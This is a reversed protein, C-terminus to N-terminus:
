QGDHIRGFVVDGLLNYYKKDLKDNEEKLNAIETELKITELELDAIKEYKESLSNLLRTVLEILSQSRVSDFKMIREEESEFADTLADDLAFSIYQPITKNGAYQQMVNFCISYIRDFFDRSVIM